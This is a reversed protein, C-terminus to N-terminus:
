GTNQRMLKILQNLVLMTCRYGDVENTFQCGHLIFKDLSGEVRGEAVVRIVNAGVSFNGDFEIDMRRGINFNHTSRFSLGGVSVDNLSCNFGEIQLLLTREPTDFSFRPHQRLRNGQNDTAEMGLQKILSYYLEKADIKVDGAETM